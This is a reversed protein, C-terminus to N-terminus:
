IYADRQTKNDEEDEEKLKFTNSRRLSIFCTKEGEGQSIQTAGKMRPQLAPIATAKVVPSNSISSSFLSILSSSTSGCVATSFKSSIFSHGCALVERVEAM